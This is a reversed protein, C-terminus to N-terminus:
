LRIRCSLRHEGPMSVCVKNAPDCLGFFGACENAKTPDCPTGNNEEEPDTITRAEKVTATTAKSTTTGAEPTTTAANSTETSVTTTTAIKLPVPDAPIQLYKAGECRMGEDCDKDEKCEKACKTDMTCSLGADCVFDPCEEGLKQGYAVALLVSALLFRFM